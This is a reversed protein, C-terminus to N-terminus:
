GARNAEYTKYALVMSFFFISVVAAGIPLQPVFEAPFVFPLFPFAYAAPIRAKFLHLLSYILALDLAAVLLLSDINLFLLTGILASLTLLLTQRVAMKPMYMPMQLSEYVVVAIPPIIAMQPYGALFVIAIWLVHLVLYVLMYRYKVPAERPVGQNLKFLIVGLMLAFTTAFIAILFSFHTANTVIPLLGTALAPALNTQMLRMSILMLCLVLLVKLLYPQDLFNIAFGIIATVSPVLFIKEPQRLWGKERWVWLAVAMAAIEPLVIESDGFFVAAGVMLLIFTFAAGYAIAPNSKDITPHFM